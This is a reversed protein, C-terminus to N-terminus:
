RRITVASEAVIGFGNGWSNRIYTAVVAIERDDMVPGWAPM